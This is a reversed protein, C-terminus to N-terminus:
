LPVTPLLGAAASSLGLSSRIAELLPGVATLPPRLNAVLLFFAVASYGVVRSRRGDIRLTESSVTMELPRYREARSVLRRGATHCRFVPAVPPWIRMLQMLPPSCARRGCLRGDFGSHSHNKAPARM